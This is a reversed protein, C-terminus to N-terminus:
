LNIKKTFYNFKTEFEVRAAIAFEVTLEKNEKKSQGEGAAECM